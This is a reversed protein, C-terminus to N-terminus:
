RSLQGFSKMGVYHHYQVAFVGDKTRLANRTRYGHTECVMEFDMAHLTLKCRGENSFTIRYDLKESSMDEIGIAKM